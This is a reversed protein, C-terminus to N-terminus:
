MLEPAYVYIHPLGTKLSTATQIVTYDHLEKPIDKVIGTYLEKSLPYCNDQSGKADVEVVIDANEENIFDKVIM